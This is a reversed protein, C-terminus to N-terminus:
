KMRRVRPLVNNKHGNTPAFLYWIIRAAIIIRVEATAFKLYLSVLASSLGRYRVSTISIDDIPNNMPNTANIILPNSMTKAEPKANAAVAAVIM